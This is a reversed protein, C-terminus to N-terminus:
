RADGRRVRGDRRNGPLRFKPHAPIAHRDRIGPRAGLVPHYTGMGADLRGLGSLAGWLAVAAAAASAVLSVIAPRRFDLSRGMLIEPISIFPTALYILAQVRLMDAVLPQDYYDAAMPAIGLQLAALSGNLLLMIGFAQRLRHTDLSESQVLASVLGYGNLFQM